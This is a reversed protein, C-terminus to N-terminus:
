QEEDLGLEEVKEMEERLADAEAETMLYFKGLVCSPGAMSGFGPDELVTILDSECLRNLTPRYSIARNNRLSPCRRPLVNRYIKNGRLIFLINRENLIDTDKLRTLSVCRESEVSEDVPYIEDDQALANASLFVALGVSALAFLTDKM